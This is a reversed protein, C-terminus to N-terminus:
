QIVSRDVADHIRCGSDFDLSEGRREALLDHIRQAPRDDFAPERGAGPEDFALQGLHHLHRARHDPFRQALEFGLPQDRDNGVLPRYYARERLGLRLVQILDTRHQFPKRRPEEGLM